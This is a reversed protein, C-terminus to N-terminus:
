LTSKKKKKTIKKKTDSTVFFRTTFGPQLVVSDAKALGQKIIKAM